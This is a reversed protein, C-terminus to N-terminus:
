RDKQLIEQTHGTISRPPFVPVSIAPWKPHVLERKFKLIEKFEIPNIFEPSKRRRFIRQCM